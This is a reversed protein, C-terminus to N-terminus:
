EDYNQKAYKIKESPKMGLMVKLMNFHIIRVYTFFGYKDLRRLSYVTRMNKNFIVKGKSRIRQGIEFDEAIPIESFGGIELFPRKKFAFNSTFIIHRNLKNSIHAFKNLMYFILTNWTGTNKPLITPGFVAVADDKILPKIIEELWNKYAICDADTMAIIDGKAVGVGDNRAGAIWRSKQMIVEDAYKQALEITKDTSDGDVVIIEYNKRPISQSNLSELCRVINKEENYTPVVVSIM